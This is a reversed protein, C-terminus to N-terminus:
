GVIRNEYNTFQLNFKSIDEVDQLEDDNKYFDSYKGWSFLLLGIIMIVLLVGGAMILARSANEM